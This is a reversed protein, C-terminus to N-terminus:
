VVATAAATAHAKEDAIAIYPEGDAMGSIIYEDAVYDFHDMDYGPWQGLASNYPTGPGNNPEISPVSVTTPETPANKPAMFGRQANVTTTFALCAAALLILKKM